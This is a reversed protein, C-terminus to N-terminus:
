SALITYSDTNTPVRATLYEYSSDDVQTRQHIIPLMENQKVLSHQITIMM